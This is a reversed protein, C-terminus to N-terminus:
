EKGAKVRISSYFADIKALIAAGGPRTLVLSRVQELYAETLPVQPYAEAYLEELLPSKGVSMKRLAKLLEMGKKPKGQEMQQMAQEFSEEELLFAGSKKTFLARIITSEKKEFAAFFEDRFRQGFEALTESAFVNPVLLTEHRSLRSFVKTFFGDTRDSARLATVLRLETQKNAVKMGHRQAFKNIASGFHVDELESTDALGEVMATELSRSIMHCGSFRLRVDNSSDLQSQLFTMLRNFQKLQNALEINKRAQIQDTGSEEDLDWEYVYGGAMAILEEDQDMYELVRALHNPDEFWTDADTQLLVGNRKQEYFRVGAEAAGRNRAKGLNCGEIANGPSSKDIVHIV